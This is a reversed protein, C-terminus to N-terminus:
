DPIDPLCHRFFIQGVLEGRSHVGVKEFISKLHEQVTYPSIGLRRAIQQTSGGQLVLATVARERESLGYAATLLPVLDDPAPPEIIVSVRALPDGELRAAHLVLWQGSPTLTRARAPGGSRASAAVASIGPPLEDGLEELWRAGAPTLSDIAGAGDLMILGPAGRASDPDAIATTLLSRRLGITLLPALHEIIASAATDFVPRGRGRVLILSGWCHGQDVFAARLEDVYGQPRFMERYRLSREPRGDTAQGLLAVRSAGLALHSFKNVDDSLYENAALLPFRSPVNLTQHSTILLTAPDMTHWCSGDFPVARRLLDDAALCWQEKRLGQEALHHFERAAREISITAM